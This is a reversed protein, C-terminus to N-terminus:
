SLRVFGKVKITDPRVVIRYGGSADPIALLAKRITAFATAWSRGDSNDGLKSVYFTKQPEAASATWGALTIAWAMLLVLASASMGRVRFHSLRNLVPRRLTPKPRRDTQLM